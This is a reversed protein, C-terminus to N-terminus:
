DPGMPPPLDRRALALRERQLAVANRAAGQQQRRAEMQGTAVEVEQVATAIAIRLGVFGREVDADATPIAAWTTPSLWPFALQAALNAMNGTSSFDGLSVGMRSAGAALGIQPFLDRRAALAQLEAADLGATAAIVDPRRQLLEIPQGTQIRAASLPITGSAGMRRRATGPAVDLLTDLAFSAAVLGAELEGRRAEASARDASAAAVDLQTVAGLEFFGRTARESERAVAILEDLAGRQALLGRIQLYAEVVNAAVAIRVAVAEAEAAGLLRGAAARRTRISGFIDPAWVGEIAAQWTDVRLTSGGLGVANGLTSDALPNERWIRSGQLPTDFSPLLGATAQRVQARAARIEALALQIQLNRALGIHVFESLLPDDFTRWWRAMTGPDVPRVGGEGATFAYPLPIPQLTAGPSACGALLAVASVLGAALRRHTM